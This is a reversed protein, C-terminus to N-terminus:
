RGPATSRILQETEGTSIAARAVKEAADLAREFLVPPMSLVDGINDFGYGSDDNPFGAAPQIDLGLLDRITNNYEVKNLRRATVRGPEPTAKADHAAIQADVWKTLNQLEAATPRQNSSPSSITM